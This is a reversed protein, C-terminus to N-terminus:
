HRVLLFIALLRYLQIETSQQRTAEEKQFQTFLVGGHGHQGHHNPAAVGDFHLLIDDLAPGDTWRADISPLSPTSWLWLWPHNILPRKIIKLSIFFIYSKSAKEIKSIEEVELNQPWTNQPSLLIPVFAHCHLMSFTAKCM